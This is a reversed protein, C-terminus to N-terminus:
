VNIKFQLSQLHELSYRPYVGMYIALVGPGFSKWLKKKLRWVETEHGKYEGWTPTKNKGDLYFFDAVYTIGPLLQVRVQTKLGSIHGVSQLTKLYLYCQGEARSAFKLGDHSCKTARIRARGM